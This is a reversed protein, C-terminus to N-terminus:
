SSTTTSASRWSSSSRSSRSARTQRPVAPWKDVISPFVYEFALTSLGMAAGFSLVVTGILIVPSALARLLLVLILFVVLLVIPIIM